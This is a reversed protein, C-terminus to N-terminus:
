EYPNDLNHVFPIPDGNEDVQERVWKKAKEKMQRILGRSKALNEGEGSDQYIIRKNATPEPDEEVVARYQGGMKFIKLIIKPM